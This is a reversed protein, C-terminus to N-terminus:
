HSKSFKAITLYRLNNTGNVTDLRTEEPFSATVTDLYFYYATTVITLHIIEVPFLIMRDISLSSNSGVQNENVERCAEGSANM